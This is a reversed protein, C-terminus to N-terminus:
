CYEYLRYDVDDASLEFGCSEYFARLGDDDITNDQPYAYLSVKYGFEFAIEKVEELLKKGTGKRQVDVKIKDVIVEEMDEDVTYDLRGNEVAITM